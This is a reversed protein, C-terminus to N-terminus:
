VNRGELTKLVAEVRAQTMPALRIKGAAKQRQYWKWTSGGKGVTKSMAEWDAIMEALCERPMEELREGAVAWHEWHHPNNAVHHVWAAGLGKAALRNKDDLFFCRTYGHFEAPSLKSLDHVLGRWFLGRKFCEKAVYYKHRTLYKLNRGYGSFLDALEAARTMVDDMSLEGDMM